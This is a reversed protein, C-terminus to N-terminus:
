RPAQTALPMPRISTRAAVVGEFVAEVGEITTALNFHREVHARCRAGLGADRRRWDRLMELRNSLQRADGAPFLHRAFEGTLVEPMGGAASAVAPTGCAMSEVLMRGFTESVSPLVTVDAAAYLDAPTAVQGVFHCRSAVGRAAARERLEAEYARGSGDEHERGAIVLDAPGSLAALADIAVELAKVPHLRGAYAILFSEASVGLRQRVTAAPEVAKWRRLDLGNYVVDILERPYGSAVYEERTRRSNAIFRSVGRLGWRYQACFRSPPSLRLHCVLPRGFRWAVLRAFPSDMYQNAYVLDPAPHAAQMIETLMRVAARLTQSRDISYGSVRDVRSCFARYGDLLNGDETYLLELDHGKLALGSCVDFLSLEQGGRATSPENELVLIKM